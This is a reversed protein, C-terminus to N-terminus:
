MTNVSVYDLNFLDLTSNLLISGNGLRKKNTNYLRILDSASNRKQLYLQM